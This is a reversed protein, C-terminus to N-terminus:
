ALSRKQLVLFKLYRGEPFSLQYPHDHPQERSDLVSLSCGAEVSSQHVIKIFTLHDVHATCSSTALIGGEPLKRLALTNLSTYAKIATKLQGRNKAFSPPDLLIADHADKPLSKLHEFVDVALFREEEVALGNLAYNRKAMELARKSIDVNTVSAADRACAVSFGGSYCFTNLLHRGHVWRRLAQRNERQDLFFGTKQGQLVDAVFRIGYEEFVVEEPLDGQAVRVPSAAEGGEQKRNRVDSREVIAKPKFVEQLAELIPQLLRAMALTHAQVVLVEGYRDIILGPLHDGEGFVLRYANTAPPLWSEKFAKLHLFRDKFFSTDLLRPQKAVMRVAIDTQGHYLGLGLTEGQCRVLVPDGDQATTKGALAGSFVWPHGQRLSKTRDPRIEVTAYPLPQSM